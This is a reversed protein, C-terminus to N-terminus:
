FVYKLCYNVLCFTKFTAFSPSSFNISSLLQNIVLTSHHSFNISSQLQSIVFTSQHSFNVSSQLQSIVVTSQHVLTVFPCIRLPQPTKIVSPCVNAIRSNSERSFIPYSPLPDVEIDTFISNKKDRIGRIRFGKHKKFIQQFCSILHWLQNPLRNFVRDFSVRRWM